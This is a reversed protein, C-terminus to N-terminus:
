KLKLWSLSKRLLENVDPSLRFYLVPGLFLFSIIATRFIADIFWNGIAPVFYNIVL